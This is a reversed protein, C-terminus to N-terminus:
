KTYRNLKRTDVNKSARKTTEDDMQFINSKIIFRIHLDVSEFLNSLSESLTEYKNVAKAFGLSKNGSDFVTYYASIFANGLIWVPLGKLRQFGSDCFTQDNTVNIIHNTVNIVVYQHRTLKFVNGGINFYVDPLVDISNCDFGYNANAM